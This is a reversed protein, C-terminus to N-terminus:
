EKFTEEKKPTYAEPVFYAKVIPLLTENWYTEWAEKSSFHIEGEKFKHEKLVHELWERGGYKQTDLVAWGEPLKRDYSSGEVIATKGTVDCTFMTRQVDIKM